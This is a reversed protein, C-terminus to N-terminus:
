MSIVLDFEACFKSSSICNVYCTEFCLSYKMLIRHSNVFLCSRIFLSCSALAVLQM